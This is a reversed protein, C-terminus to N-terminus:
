HERRFFTPLIGKSNNVVLNTPMMLMKTSKDYVFSEGDEQGKNRLKIFSEAEDVILMEIRNVQGNMTMSGSGDAALIISAQELYPRILGVPDPADSSSVTPSGFHSFKWNGALTALSGKHEALKAPTATM